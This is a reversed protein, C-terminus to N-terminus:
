KKDRIFDRIHSVLEKSHTASNTHMDIYSANKLNRKINMLAEPEHLKDHSGGVLLCPTEIRPLREWVSYKWLSVAARKLKWPDAADLASCYKIYQDMDKHIDMRFTRLYWKVAPKILMYLPPYFLTIIIKWLLPARFEANPAVLVLALPKVALSSAAHLIVTAGLSSGLFLYERAGPSVTKLVAKIDDAMAAISYEKEGKTRNGRKERTEIYVVPFDRTLEPLVHKWSTPQTIWGPVFLVAPNDTREEPEVFFVRLWVRKSVQLLEESVRSGRACLSAFDDKSYVSPGSM